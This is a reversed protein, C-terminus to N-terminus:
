ILGLGQMTVGWNEGFVTALAHARPPTAYRMLIRRSEIAVSDRLLHQERFPVRRNRAVIIKKVRRLVPSRRLSSLLDRLRVHPISDVANKAALANSAFGEREALEGLVASSLSTNEGTFAWVAAKEYDSARHPPLRAFFLHRSAATRNREYQRLKM